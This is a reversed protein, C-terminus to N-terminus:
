IKNGFIFEDLKYDRGKVCTVTYNNKNIDGNSLVTGDCPCCLTYGNLPDDIPRAGHKLERTFFENFTAFDNLDETLIEDFNVGYLKGFGL